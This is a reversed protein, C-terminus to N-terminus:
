SNTEAPQQEQEPEPELEAEPELELRSPDTNIEGGQVQGTKKKLRLDGEHDSQAPPEPVRTTEAKFEWQEEAALVNKLQPTNYVAGLGARRSGSGIDICDILQLLRFNVFRLRHTAVLKGNHAGLDNQLEDYAHELIGIAAAFMTKETVDKFFEIAQAPDKPQEGPVNDKAKGTAARANEEQCKGKDDSFKALCSQIVETSSTRHLQLIAALFDKYSHVYDLTHAADISRRQGADQHRLM